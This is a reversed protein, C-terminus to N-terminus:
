KIVFVFDPNYVDALVEVTINQFFQNNDIHTSVVRAVPIDPPYIDSIGSTIAIDDIEVKQSKPVGEIIGYKSYTPVFIGLTRNSGIRISVRFNKDTIIQIVSKKDNVSFIKGIIGEMDMVPMNTALDNNKGINISFSNITPSLNHTTIEGLKLEFNNKEKYNLMKKLKQNEILLSNLEIKELELRTIKKMLSANKEKLDFASKYWFFPGLFSTYYNTFNNKLNRVPESNNSLFITTSFLLVFILFFIDKQFIIYRIISIM